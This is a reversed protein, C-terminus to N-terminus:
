MKNGHARSSTTGLKWCWARSPPRYMFKLVVSKLPLRHYRFKTVVSELSPPVSIENGYERSSTTSFNWYWARSPNHYRFKLVQERSSTTCLYWYWTRSPRRYQFKLVSSELSLTSTGLDWYGELPHPIQIETGLRRSTTGLNLHWARSPPHYQFNTVM